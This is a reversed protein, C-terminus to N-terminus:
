QGSTGKMREWYLKHGDFWGRLPELGAFTSVSSSGDGKEEKEIRQPHWLVQQGLLEGQEM